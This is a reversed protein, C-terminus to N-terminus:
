GRRHRLDEFEAEELMPGAAHLAEDHGLRVRREAQRHRLIHPQIVERQHDRDPDIEGRDIQQLERDPRANMAIRSLSIAAEAIPTSTASYLVSANPTLAPMVPTAPPRPAM